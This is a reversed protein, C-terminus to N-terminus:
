EVRVRRAIRGMMSGRGCAMILSYALQRDKGSRAYGVFKKGWHVIIANEEGLNDKEVSISMRCGPAQEFLEDLRGKFDHHRLGNVIFRYKPM